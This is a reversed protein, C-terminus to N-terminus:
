SSLHLTFGAETVLEEGGGGVGEDGEEEVAEEPPGVHRAYAVAM